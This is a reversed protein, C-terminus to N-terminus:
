LVKVGVFIEFREDVPELEGFSVELEESLARLEESLLMGERGGLGICGRRGKGMNGRGGWTKMRSSTAGKLQLSSSFSSKSSSQSFASFSTSSATSTAKM